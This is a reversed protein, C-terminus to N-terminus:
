KATSDPQSGMTSKGGVMPEKSWKKSPMFYCCGPADNEWRIALTRPDFQGEEKVMLPTM